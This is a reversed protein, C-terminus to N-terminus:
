IDTTNLDNSANKESVNFVYMTCDWHMLPLFTESTVLQSPLM